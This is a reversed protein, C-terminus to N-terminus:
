PTEYSSMRRSLPRRMPRLAPVSCCNRRLLAALFPNNYIATAIAQQVNVYAGTAAMTLCNFLSQLYRWILLSILLSVGLSPDKGGGDRICLTAVLDEISPCPRPARRSTTSQGANAAHQIPPVGNRLEM